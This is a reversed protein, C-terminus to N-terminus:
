FVLCFPQSEKSCRTWFKGSMAETQIFGYKLVAAATIEDRLNM